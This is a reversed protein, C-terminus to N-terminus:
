QIVADGRDGGNIELERAVEAVPPGTELVFRVAEAKVATLVEKLNPDCAWGRTLLSFEDSIKPAIWCKTLSM